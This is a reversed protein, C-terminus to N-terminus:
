QADACSIYYQKEAVLKVVGQKRSTGPVRRWSTALGTGRRAGGRSSLATSAAATAALTVAAAAYRCDGFAGACRAAL